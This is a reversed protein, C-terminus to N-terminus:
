TPYRESLRESQLASLSPHAMDGPYRVGPLHMHVASPHLPPLGGGGSLSYFPSRLASLCFPDDMRYPTFSPHPLYSPHYYAATAPDMGLPLSPMRLAEEATAYPRFGRLYDEPVAGPPLGHALGRPLNLPQFRSDQMVAGPTLGLAMPTKGPYPCPVSPGSKDQSLAGEVGLRERSAGRPGSDAQM